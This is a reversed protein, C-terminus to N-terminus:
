GANGGRHCAHRQGQYLHHKVVKPCKAISHMTRPTKVHALTKNPNEEDAKGQPMLKGKAKSYMKAHTRVRSGLINQM